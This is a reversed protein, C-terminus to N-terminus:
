SRDATFTENQRVLVLEGDWNLGVLGNDTLYRLHERIEKRPIGIEALMSFVFTGPRIPGHQKLRQVIRERIEKDTV